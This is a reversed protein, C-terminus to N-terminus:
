PTAGGASGGSGNEGLMEALGRGHGSKDVGPPDLGLFAQDQDAEPATAENPADVQHTSYGTGTRDGIEAEPLQPEPPPPASEVDPVHTLSAEAKGGWEDGPAASFYRPVVTLLTAHVAASLCVPIVFSASPRKM